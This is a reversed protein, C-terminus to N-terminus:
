KLSWLSFPGLSIGAFLRGSMSNFSLEESIELRHDVQPHIPISTVRIIWQDIRSEIPKALLHPDM